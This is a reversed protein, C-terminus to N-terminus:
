PSAFLTTSEHFFSVPLYARSLDQRAEHPSDSRRMSARRRWRVTGLRRGRRGQLPPGPLLGNEVTESAAPTKTARTSDRGIFRYFSLFSPRRAGLGYWLGRGPTQLRSVTVVQVPM